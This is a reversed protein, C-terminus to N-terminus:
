LFIHSTVCKIPLFHLILLMKVIFKLHYTITPELKFKGNFNNKQGDIVTM